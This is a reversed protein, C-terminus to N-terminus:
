EYLTKFFVASKTGNMIFLYELRNLQGQQGFFMKRIFNRQLIDQNKIQFRCSQCSSGPGIGKQDTKSIEIGLPDTQM